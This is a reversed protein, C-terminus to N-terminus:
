IGNTNCIRNLTSMLPKKENLTNKLLHYLNLLLDVNFHM